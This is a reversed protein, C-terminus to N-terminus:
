HESSKSPLFRNVPVLFHECIASEFRSSTKKRHIMICSKFHLSVLFFFCNLLAFTLIWMTTIAIRDVKEHYKINKHKQGFYFHTAIFSLHFYFFFNRELTCVLPFRFYSDSLLFFIWEIQEWLDNQWSLHMFSKFISAM